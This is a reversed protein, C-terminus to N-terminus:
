QIKFSKQIPMYELVTQSLFNSIGEMYAMWISNKPSIIKGDCINATNRIRIDIAQSHM